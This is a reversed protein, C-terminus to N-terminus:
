FWAAVKHYPCSRTISAHRSGDGTVELKLSNERKKVQGTKVVIKERMQCQRFSIIFCLNILHLLLLSMSFILSYYLAMLIHPQMAEHGGSRESADETGM